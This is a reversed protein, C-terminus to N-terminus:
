ASEEELELGPRYNEWAHVLEPGYLGYPDVPSPHSHARPSLLLIFSPRGRLRIKGRWALSFGLAASQELPPEPHESLVALRSESHLVRGAERWFATPDGALAGGWDVTRDWPINCLLRDVSRYDLPLHAADGRWTRLPIQLHAATRGALQLAVPDIDSALPRVGSELLAAELAITGSGCCPDLLVLEPSLGVCLALAAALPPYLAARHAQNRYPRRHLPAALLRLGVYATDGRLHLRWSLNARARRDPPLPATGLQPALIQGAIDELEFRNYNRRGLFSAVVDFRPLAPLTRLNQLQELAATLDLRRLGQGLRPLSDRRHDLGAISGCSLFIDDVTRLDRLRPDPGSLQFHIERHDVASICAGLRGQIEAAAIWELGRVSRAMFDIRPGGPSPPPMSSLPDPPKTPPTM